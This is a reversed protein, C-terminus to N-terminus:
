KGFRPIGGARSLQSTTIKICAEALDAPEPHVQEEDEDFINHADCNEVSSFGRALCWAEIQAALASRHAPSLGSINIAIQNSM